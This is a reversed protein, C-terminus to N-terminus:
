LNICLEKALPACGREVVLFRINHMKLEGFEINEEAFSCQGRAVGALPWGGPGRSSRACGSPRSAYLCNEMCVYIKTQQTRRILINYCLTSKWTSPTENKIPPVDCFLRFITKRAFLYIKTKTKTKNKTKKQTKQKTKQKNTQQNTQQDTQKNTQKNLRFIVANPQNERVPLTM